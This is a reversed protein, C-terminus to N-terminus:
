NGDISILEVAHANEILGDVSESDEDGDSRNGEFGNGSGRRSGDFRDFTANASSRLRLCDLLSDRISSQPRHEV